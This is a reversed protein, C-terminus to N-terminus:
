RRGTDVCVNVVCQTDPVPPLVYPGSYSCVSFGSVDENENETILGALAGRKSFCQRMRNRLPLWSLSVWGSTHTHEFVDLFKSWALFSVKPPM